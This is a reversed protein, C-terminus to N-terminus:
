LQRAQRRKVGIPLCEECSLRYRNQIISFFVPIKGSDLFTPAKEENEPNDHEAVGKEMDEVFRDMDEADRQHNEVKKNAPWDGDADDIEKGM